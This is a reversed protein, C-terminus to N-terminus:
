IGRTSLWDTKVPKTSSEKVRQIEAQVNPDSLKGFANEWAARLSAAEREDINQGQETELWPMRSELVYKYAAHLRDLENKLHSGINAERFAVFRNSLAGVTTAGYILRASMVDHTDEDRLASLFLYEREFYETDSPDCRFKFGRLAAKSM